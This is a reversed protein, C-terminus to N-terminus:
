SKAKHYSLPAPQQHRPSISAQAAPAAEAPAKKAEADFHALAAEASPYEVGGVSVPKPASVSSADPQAIKSKTFIGAQPQGKLKPDEIEDGAGDFCKGDRRYFKVNGHCEMSYPTVRKIQGTKTDRHHVTHDFGQASM